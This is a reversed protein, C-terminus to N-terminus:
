IVITSVGLLCGAGGSDSGCVSVEVSGVTVLALRVSILAPMGTTSPLVSTSAGSAGAAELISGSAALAAASSCHSLCAVPPSSGKLSDKSITGRSGASVSVGCM